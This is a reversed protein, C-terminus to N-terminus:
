TRVSIGKRTVQIGERERDWFAHLDAEAGQRLKHKEIKQNITRPFADVIRVYRPVMFYALNRDCHRILDEPRLKADPKLIVSVAVEDESSEAKVPYVAVDEVDPHSRIAEEVEYASINEGRRRIADKLRDTFWVYGDADIVGRDGTHFWLNRRSALTAEPANYYGLTSCWPLKHRMVIEGPIGPGVEQDEGDFIKLEVHLRPVGVSGLKDRRSKTNYYTGQGFDTLAYASMITVGFREEFERASGPVPALHVRWVKHNRDDPSPPQNWLFNVVSSLCNFLTANSKRVDSWFHTTSFRTAVAIAADAMFCGMTSGLFANGHFLPLYVYAIDEPVYEHHTAVDLGYYILQAHCFINAKSPGTTGSTYMLIATDMFSPEQQPVTDPASLLVNFDIFRTDRPQSRDHTTPTGARPIEAVIVHRLKPVLSAVEEIRDLLAREVIVAVCDAHTLFYSLLHGKAGINIPVTVMGARCIGWQALVQEPCNEMLVAVHGGFPIGIGLLGNGIRRTLEDIQGYTFTRGDPLHTLFVKSGLRRGKESLMRGMTANRTDFEALKM